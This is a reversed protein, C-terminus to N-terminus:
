GLLHTQPHRWFMLEEVKLYSNKRLDKVIYGKERVLSQAELIDQAAAEDLVYILEGGGAVYKQGYSTPVECTIEGLLSQAVPINKRSGNALLLVTRAQYVLPASMSVAYHPSEVRSPFNGDAVANVITNEDLKVLMVPSCDFPIGSEHFAVHGHGGVGVIQLDIGGAAAIERAYEDLVDEQIVRLVGTARPLIEIAQGLGLGREEYEHGGADLAAELENQDILLGGPLSTQRFKRQLLGFFESIMFYTYSKCYLAREQANKGPLGVYEDLNFTRLGCADIRGSNCAKALHKYLGTPSNGTALGLVVTKLRQQQEKIKIETLQAAVASMQDFDKTIYITLPM